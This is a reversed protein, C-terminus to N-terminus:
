LEPVSRGRPVQAKDRREGRLIRGLCARAYAGANATIDEGTTRIRVTTGGSSPAMDCERAVSTLAVTAVLLALAAIAVFSGIRM